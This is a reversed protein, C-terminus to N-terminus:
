NSQCATAHLINLRASGHLHLHLGPHFDHRYIGGYKDAFSTWIQHHPHADQKLFAMTQPMNGLVPWLPPGPLASYPKVGDAPLPALM